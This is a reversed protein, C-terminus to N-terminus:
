AEEVDMGFESLTRQLRRIEQEGDQIESIDRGLQEMIRLVIAKGIGEIALLNHIDAKRLHGTDRYGNNYLLRARVRGIGKLSVLPLLEEKVGYTIRRNLKYLERREFHYLAAIREMAHLLWKATDVRNRLDGPGINFSKTITNEPVEDVWENLLIATKLEEAFLENALVENDGYIEKDTPSLFIEDRHSEALLFLDGLEGERVYLNLMDPTASITHFYSLPTAVKNKSGELARKMVVASKPDIYLDSTLKGFPTVRLGKEEIGPLQDATVFDRDTQLPPAFLMGNDQLFRLAEKVERARIEFQYAYFTKNLFDMLGSYDRVFGSAISSIIHIRLIPAIGLKSEIRETEGHVVEEIVRDVDDANKVVFIAEGYPDYGPRGARGAMQKLELNPIPQNGTFRGTFRYLDRIVVRRAPLNIGAALTPTAVLAKIFGKKFAKEIIKRQTNGLGAHHFGTGGMVCSALREVMETPENQTTILLEAVEKLRLANGYSRVKGFVEHED